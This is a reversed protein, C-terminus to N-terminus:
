RGGSAARLVADSVEFALDVLAGALARVEGDSVIALTAPCTGEGTSAAWTIRANFAKFVTRAPEPLDHESVPGACARAERLRQRLPLESTAMMRLASAFKEAAYNLDGTPGPLGASSPGKSADQTRATYVRATQVHVRGPAVYAAHRSM